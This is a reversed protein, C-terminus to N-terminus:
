DNLVLIYKMLGTYCLYTDLFVIAGFFILLGLYTLPLNGKSKTFLVISLFLNQVVGLLMFSSTLNHRIPIQEILDNLM